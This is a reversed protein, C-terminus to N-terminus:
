LFSENLARKRVRLRTLTADLFEDESGSMRLETEKVEVVIYVDEDLYVLREAM